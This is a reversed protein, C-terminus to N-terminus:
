SRIIVFLLSFMKKSAYRDKKARVSMEQQIYWMLVINQLQDAFSIAKYACPM